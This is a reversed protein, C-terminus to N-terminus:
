RLIAGPWSKTSATGPGISVNTRGNFLGEKPKADLVTCILAGDESIDEPLQYVARQEPLKLDNALCTIYCKQYADKVSEAEVIIIHSGGAADDRAIALWKRMQRESM